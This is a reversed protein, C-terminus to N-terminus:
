ERTKLVAVLDLRNLKHRVVLSSVLTAVIVSLAARGYTNDGVILPIRYLETSGITAVTIAALVYGLALGIPIAMATLLVFEGLLVYSIEGKTFGMVRLSALEWSRESLSIRAANYIVGFAIVSSFVQNFFIIVGINQQVTDQFSQLAAEKLAVAAVSPTSKLRTYLGDMESSDVQLYAGSIVRGERMLNRLSDLEMYVSTGLFEDVVSAVEVAREPRTGELVEITVIDGEVAGIIESMQRSLVLGGNPLAIPSLDDDIVRNLEPDGLLGTISTQRSRHDFRLRAPVSRVPELNMVGNLSALEYLAGPSAPEVFTVTLDQRQAVNFQINMTENMADMFFSGEVVMAAGFAIGIVSLATRFPRRTLNRVIIRTAPSIWRRLGLREILSVRYHAPAQPRMAEAPPLDIAKRVAGRAGLIAAALSVLISTGVVNPAIRFALVPFRFFDNYINVMASALWTGSAIGIAIGLVTVAIAWLYYHLGIETNSYGLAKLAAIQERQVAVIRGLVVNLLFAAVALFIIPIITGFSELQTLENNLFWHSLQLARPVAGLGGYRELIRDLQSIAEADSAGPMLRLVVDNFGGEMDFAAALEQRNMWLIGYRRDDPMVDGPRIIYVFEPSLAIGAIELERKRGNIVATITDGPELEHALAFGENVLVEDRRNPDIYRGSRLFLDNLMSRREGPISVLRAMAPESMDPMDLTVNASVRLEVQGVGPIGGIRDALYMPARKLSAFVDAFRYRDYYTAQTLRLSEFAGMYM